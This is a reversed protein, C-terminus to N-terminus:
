LLGPYRRFLKPCGHSSPSEGRAQRLDALSNLTSLYGIGDMIEPVQDFYVPM